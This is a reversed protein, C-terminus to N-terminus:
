LETRRMPYFILSVERYGQSFVAPALDSLSKLTDEGVIKIQRDRAKPSVILKRLGFDILRLMVESSNDNSDYQSSPSGMGHSPFFTNQRVSSTGHEHPALPFGAVEFSDMHMPWRCETRPFIWELQSTQRRHQYTPSCGNQGRHPYGYEACVDIAALSIAPVDPPAHANPPNRLVNPIPRGRASNTAKTDRCLGFKIYHVRSSDTDKTDDHRKFAINFGLDSWVQSPTLALSLFSGHISIRVKSHCINEALDGIFTATVLELCSHVSISLRIELEPAETIWISPQKPWLRTDTPIELHQSSNSRTFHAIPSFHLQLQSDTAHYLCRGLDVPYSM